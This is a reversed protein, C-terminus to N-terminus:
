QRNAQENAQKVNGETIPFFFAAASSTSNQQASAPQVTVPLRRCAICHQVSKINKAKIEFKNRIFVGPNKLDV